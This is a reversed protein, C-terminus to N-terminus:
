VNRGPVRSPARGPFITIEGGALIFNPGLGSERSLAQCQGIGPYQGKM